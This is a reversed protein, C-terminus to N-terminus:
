GREAMGRILALLRRRDEPDSVLKFVALLEACEADSAVPVASVAAASTGADVANSPRFFASPPVQVAEAIRVLLRETKAQRLTSANRVEHWRSADCPTESFPRAKSRM